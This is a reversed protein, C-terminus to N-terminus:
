SAPVKVSTIAIGTQGDTLTVRVQVTYTGAITYQKTLAAVNVGTTTSGGDGWEWVISAVQTTLIVGAKSATVVCGTPTTTINGAVCGVSLILYETPTPIPTVVPAPSVTVTGSASASKGYSDAITVQITYVGATAWTHFTAYSTSTASSGDGYIWAYSAPAQGSFTVGASVLTSVGAVASLSGLAITPAPTPTPQPPVSPTPTAVPPIPTTPTPTVVPPVYVPVEQLAVNVSAAVTGARATVTVLSSAVVTAQALGDSATRIPSTVTGSTAVLEVPANNVPRGTQDLVHVSITAQNVGSGTGLFASLTISAPSQVSAPAPPSSPALPPPACGIAALCLVIALVTREQPTSTVPSKIM